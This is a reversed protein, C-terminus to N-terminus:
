AKSREPERRGTADRFFISQGVALRGTRTVTGYIGANNQNARVVAKLVEPAARASDPDLNVMACRVDRMTVNVAPADDREGFALVGGLWGDEQFPGERALRVVINPRFRRVDPSRGALRGIERVTDFAIV